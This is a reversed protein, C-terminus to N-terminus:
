GGGAPRRGFAMRALMLAGAATVLISVLPLRRGPWGLVDFDRGQVKVTYNRGSARLQEWAAQNLLGTFQSASGPGRVVVDVWRGETAYDRVVFEAGPQSAIMRRVEDPSIRVFWHSRTFGWGLMGGIVITSLAVWRVPLRVAPLARSAGAAQPQRIRLHNQWAWRALAVALAGYFLVLCVKLALIVGPHRGMSDPLYASPLIWGFLGAAFIQWFRRVWIREGANQRADAMQWGVYGGIFVVFSMSSVFWLIQATLLPVLAGLWSATKASGGKVAAGVVVPGGAAALAPLAALVGLTFTPGPNSRELTAEVLALVRDQLLVRGRSLRQKVADESLELAEAVRAVSQHERYYLVLPERYGEPMQALSRWLIAEEERSIAQDSPSPEAAALEPAAELPEALHAPDRGACRQANSILHRAIGCLWARLRTPERLQTLQKWAAVFTEQALDESRSLSGTASYALACVLSQHRAVIEGFAARDHALSLRVLEADTRPLTIESELTTM